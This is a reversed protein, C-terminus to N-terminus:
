FRILGDKNEPEVDMNDSEKHKKKSATGIDAKKSQSMKYPNTFINDPVVEHKKIRKAKFPERDVIEDYLRYQRKRTRKTPKNQKGITLMFTTRGKKKSFYDAEELQQLVEPAVEINKEEEDINNRQRLSHKIYKSALDPKCTNFVNWFYKKPPIHEEDDEDPYDAFYEVIEPYMEKVRPYITRTALEEYQPVVIPKLDNAKFVRFILIINSVEEQRSFGGKSIKDFM